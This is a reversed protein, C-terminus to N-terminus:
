TLPATVMRWSHVEHRVVRAPIGPNNLHMSDVMMTLTNEADEQWEADDLVHITHWKGEVERQVM